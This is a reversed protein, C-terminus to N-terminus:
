VQVYMSKKVPLLRSLNNKENKQQGSSKTIDKMKRRFCNVLQRKVGCESM